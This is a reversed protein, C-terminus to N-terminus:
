SDIFASNRGRERSDSERLLLLVTHSSELMWFVNWAAPCLCPGGARTGGIRLWLLLVFDCARGKAGRRRADAWSARVRVCAGTSAPQSPAGSASGGAGQQVDPGGCCLGEFASQIQPSATAPKAGCQPDRSASLRQNTDRGGLMRDTRAAQAAPTHRFLPLPSIQLWSRSHGVEAGGTPAQGRSGERLVGRLM